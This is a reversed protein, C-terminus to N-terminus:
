LFRMLLSILKPAQNNAVLVQKASRQALAELDQIRRAKYDNVDVSVIFRDESGHQTVLQLVYQLAQLNAGHQGILLASDDSQIQVSAVLRDEEMACTCTVQGDIGMNELMHLAMEVIKENREKDNM